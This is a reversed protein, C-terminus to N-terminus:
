AKQHEASTQPGVVRMCGTFFVRWFASKVAVQMLTGCTNTGSVVVRAAWSSGCLLGLGDVRLGGGVKEEPTAHAYRRPTDAEHDAAHPAKRALCFSSSAPDTKLQFVGSSVFM